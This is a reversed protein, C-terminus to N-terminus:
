ADQQSRLQGKEDVRKFNAYRHGALTGPSFVSAPLGCTSCLTHNIMRHSIFAFRGEWNAEPNQRMWEVVQDSTVITVLEPCAVCHVGVTLPGAYDSTCLPYLVLEHAVEVNRKTEVPGLNHVLATPDFADVDDVILDLEVPVRPDHMSLGSTPTPMELAHKLHFFFRSTPDLGTPHTKDCLRFYQAATGCAYAETAYAVAEEPCDRAKGMLVAPHRVFCNWLEVPRLGREPPPAAENDSELRVDFPDPIGFVNDPDQQMANNYWVRRLTTLHLAVTAAHSMRPTPTPTAM